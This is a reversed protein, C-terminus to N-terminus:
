FVDSRESYGPVWQRVMEGFDDIELGLFASFREKLREETSPDIPEFINNIGEDSCINRLKAKQDNKSLNVLDDATFNARAVEVAPTSAATSSPKRGGAGGKGKRKIRSQPAKARPKGNPKTATMAGRGRGGAAEDGGTATAAITDSTASSVTSNNTMM